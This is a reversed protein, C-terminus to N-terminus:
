DLISCNEYKMNKKICCRVRGALRRAVVAIAKKGNKKGGGAHDVCRAYIAMLIADQKIAVWASEIFCSRLDARGRRAAGHHHIKDGSTSQRPVLGLYSFFQKENPFDVMDGLENKLMLAAVPGIGPVSHYLDLLHQDCADDATFLKKELVALFHTFFVWVEQYCKLTYIYDTPYGLAEIMKIKDGLWKETLVTRDEVAILGQTFLLAKFAQAVQRRWKVCYVRFRSGSRSSEQKLTPIRVDQLIGASLSLAIKKADKMDTKIGHRKGMPISAAHVVHSHIGASLLERHLHFGAFSAEYAAHVTAGEFHSQIYALLTGPTPHITDKKVCNRDCVSVCAYKTRCVDIGIFVEKGTYDPKSM